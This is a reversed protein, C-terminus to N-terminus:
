EECTAGMIKYSSIVSSVKLNEKEMKKNMKEALEKLDAKDYNITSTSVIKSGNKSIDYVYYDLNDFKKFEERMEKEYKDATESDKLSVVERTYTTSVKGDNYKINYTAKINFYQTQEELVCNISGSKGEYKDKTTAIKNDLNSNKETCATSVLAFFGLVLILIKKKM